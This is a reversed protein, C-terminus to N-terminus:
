EKVARAVALVHVCAAGAKLLTDVCENVTAGTTLVDDVLVIRKGEIRAALRPNVAFAGKVNERRDGARKHGQSPTARTRRLAGQMVPIKAVKGLDRTIVAAQNYRRKLIRWYHLPVPVLFDVEDLFDAGAKQLLPTITRVAFMKDAQKFGLVLDRSADNYKLPARASAYSPPHERCAVCIEGPAAAYEFPVGCRACYPAIIFEMAGWVEPSLMGQKEVIDGSVPCRAPLVTDIARQIAKRLFDAQQKM